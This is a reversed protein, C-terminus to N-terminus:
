VVIKYFVGEGLKSCFELSANIDAARAQINKLGFGSSSNLESDFGVGDDSITIILKEGSDIHIKITNANAHKFTNHIIEQCIRFLNLGINSSISNNSSIDETFSIQTTTYRFINRAYVKLKDSFDDIAISESNIAWITERLNGIVNKITTQITDSLEEHTNLDESSKGELTYLVYSLQGGVNDHLDRAIREKEQQVAQLARLEKRNNEKIFNKFDIALAICLLIIEFVLAHFLTYPLSWYSPFITANISLTVVTKVFFPLTSVLYIIAGIEKRRIGGAIYVFSITITFGIMFLYLNGFWKFTFADIGYVVIIFFMFLLIILAINNLQYNLKPSVQKKLLFERLFLLFSFVAMLLLVNGYVPNAYQPSLAYIFEIFYGDIYSFWFCLSLIYFLYYLYKKERTNIFVLLCFISLMFTLGIFFDIHSTSNRESEAFSKSNYLVIPVRLTGHPKHVRVFIQYKKDKFFQFAVANRWTYLERLAPNISWNVKLAQVVDGEESVAYIEIDPITINAVEIVIPLDTQNKFDFMVWHWDNSMFYTPLFGDYTKFENSLKVLDNITISSDAVSFTSLNNGSLKVQKDTPKFIVTNTASVKHFFFLGVIFFSSLRLCLLKNKFFFLHFKLLSAFLFDLGRTRNYKGEIKM